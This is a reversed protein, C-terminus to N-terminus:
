YKAVLEEAQELTPANIGVEDEGFVILGNECIGVCYGDFSKYNYQSYYLRWKRKKIFLGKKAAARRLREERNKLERDTM